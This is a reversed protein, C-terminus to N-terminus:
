GSGAQGECLACAGAWRSRCAQEWERDAEQENRRNRRVATFWVRKDNRDPLPLLFKVMRGEAVFCIVASTENTMYAFSSAGYRALIREIETRSKEVPITTDSAYSM